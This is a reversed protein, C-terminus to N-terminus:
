SGPVGPQEGDKWFQQAVVKGDRLTAEAKLCGSPYYARSLGEPRNNAMPIEEALVGNEHWRRFVGEIKGNVIAAESCKRGSEYWKVRRGHSVGAHFYEEVQKVGNTHWGESLGELVGNSVASRSKIRGDPYREIRWDGSVAANGGPTQTGPVSPHERSSAPRPQILGRSWVLVALAALGLCSWLIVRQTHVPLSM